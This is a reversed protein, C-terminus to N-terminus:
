FSNVDQVPTDHSEVEFPRVAPAAPAAKTEKHTNSADVPAIFRYGLRALTEVYIPSEASDGLAIRLRNVATNLGSEFDVFTDAPWLRARLEERTVVHGPEELLASLIHFPKAQLRVRVGHKRLEGTELFLEFAGFRVVRRGRLDQADATAM